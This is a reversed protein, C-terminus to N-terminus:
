ECSAAMLLTEYIDYGMQLCDKRGRSEKGKLFPPPIIAPFYGAMKM